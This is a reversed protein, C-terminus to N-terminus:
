FFNNFTNKQVKVLKQEVSFTENKKPYVEYISRGSMELQRADGTDLQFPNLRSGNSLSDKYM